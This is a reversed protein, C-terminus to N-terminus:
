WWNLTNCTGTNGQIRKRQQQQFYFIGSKATIFLCEIRTSNNYKHSYYHACRANNLNQHLSQCKLTIKGDDSDVTSLKETLCMYLWAKFTCELWRYLNNSCSALLKKDNTLSILPFFIWRSRCLLRVRFGSEWTCKAFKWHRWCLCPTAGSKARRTRRYLWRWRLSSRQNSKRSIFKWVWQLPYTTVTLMTKESRALLPRKLLKLGLM